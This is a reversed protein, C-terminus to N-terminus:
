NLFFPDSNFSDPMILAQPDLPPLSELALSIENDLKVLEITPSSYRNKSKSKDLTNM